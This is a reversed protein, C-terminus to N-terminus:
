CDTTKMKVNYFNTVRRQPDWYHHSDNNLGIRGKLDFEQYMIVNLASQDFRHCGIYAGDSIKLLDFKCGYPSTGTPAICEEHLACDLWRKVWKERIVDTFWVCYLGSEITYNMQKAAMPRSMNFGLYNLTSDHTLTTIPIAGRPGPVYPFELLLRVIREVPPQHIRLSADGFLVVEYERSIESLIIPKWAYKDLTKVYSPYKRFNFARIEVNCYNSLQTKEGVSLGIDYVIIRTHPLNAQVSAFM